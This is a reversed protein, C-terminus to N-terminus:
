GYRTILVYCFLLAAIVAISGIKARSWVSASPMMTKLVVHALLSFAVLSTIWFTLMAKDDSTQFGFVHWPAGETPEHDLFDRRYAREKHEMKTITHFANKEEKKMKAEFEKLLRIAEILEHATSYQEQISENLLNSKSQIDNAFAANASQLGQADRATKASPDCQDVTSQLSHVQNNLNTLQIKNATCQAAPDPTPPPSAQAQTRAQAAQIAAAFPASSQQNGM